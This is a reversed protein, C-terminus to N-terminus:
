EDGEAAPSHFDNPRIPRGLGAKRAALTDANHQRVNGMVTPHMQWRPVRAALTPSGWARVLTWFKRGHRDHSLGSIREAEETWAAVDEDDMAESMADDLMGPEIRSFTAILQNLEAECRNIAAVAKSGSRPLKGVEGLVRELGYSMSQYMVSRSDDREMLEQLVEQANEVAITAEWVWQERALDTETKGANIKDWQNPVDPHVRPTAWEPPGSHKKASPHLVVALCNLALHAKLIKELIPRYWGVIEPHTVRPEPVDIDRLYHAPDDPAPSLVAQPRQDARQQPADMGAGIADVNDAELWTRFSLRM